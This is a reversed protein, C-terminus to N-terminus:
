HKKLYFFLHLLCIQDESLHDNCLNIKMCNKTKLTVIRISLVVSFQSFSHLSTNIELCEIQRCSYVM